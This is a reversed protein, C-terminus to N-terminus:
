DTPQIYNGLDSERILWKAGLKVAPIDGAHILKYLTSKGLHLEYCAEEVTLFKENM